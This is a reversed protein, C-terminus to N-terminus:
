HRDPDRFAQEDREIRPHGIRFSRANQSRGLRRQQDCPRANLDYGLGRGIVGFGGKDHPGRPSRARWLGHVVCM